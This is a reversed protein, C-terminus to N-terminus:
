LTDELKCLNKQNIFYTIVKQEHEYDHGIWNKHNKDYYHGQSHFSDFGYCFINDYKELYYLLAFLGLSHNIYNPTIQKLKYYLMNCEGNNWKTKTKDTQIIPANPSMVIIQEINTTNRPVINDNNNHMWVSTKTGIYKEYGTILFNNLRVVINFQDIINGAEHTLCTSSNSLVITPM